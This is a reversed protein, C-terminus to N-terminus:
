DRMDTRDVVEMAERRFALPAAIKDIPTKGGGTGCVVLTGFGFIRGLISQDIRFSEVKSHNLEMTQRRIFGVKAIVRKTTVALETTVKYVLAKILSGIGFLFLLLAIVPGGAEEGLGTAAVGFFILMACPVFIFWHVKGTHVVQESTMLNNSVYSM